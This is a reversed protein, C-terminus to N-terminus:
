RGTIWPVGKLRYYIAEVASASLNYKEGIEKLAGNDSKHCNNKIKIITHVDKTINIDRDTCFPYPYNAWHKQEKKTPKLLLAKNADNVVTGLTGPVIIRDIAQILYEALVPKLAEGKILSEQITELLETSASLRGKKAQDLTWQLGIDSNSYSDRVLM